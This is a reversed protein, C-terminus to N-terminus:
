RTSDGRRFGHIGGGGGSVGGTTTSGSTPVSSRTSAPKRRRYFARSPNESGATDPVATTPGDVGDIVFRFQSGTNPGAVRVTLNGTNQM